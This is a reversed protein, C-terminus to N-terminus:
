DWDHYIRFSRGHNTLPLCALPRGDRHWLLEYLRDCASTSWDGRWRMQGCALASAGAFNLRKLAETSRRAHWNLNYNRGNFYCQPTALESLHGPGGGEERKDSPAGELPSENPM